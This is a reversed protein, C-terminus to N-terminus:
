RHHRQLERTGLSGRAPAPGRSRGPQPARGSAPSIRSRARSSSTMGVASTCHRRACRPMPSRRRSQRGTSTARTMTWGTAISRCCVRSAVSTPCPCAGTPRGRIACRKRSRRSRLRASRRRASARHPRSRPDPLGLAPCLRASLCRGSVDLGRLFGLRHDYAGSGAAGAARRRRCATADHRLVVRRVHGGPRQLVPARRVVPRHRCRRAARPRVSRVSWRLRLPRAHGPHRGRVGCGGRCHTSGPRSPRSWRSPSTTRCANSCCPCRTGACRSDLRRSPAGETRMPVPVDRHFHATFRAGLGRRPTSAM